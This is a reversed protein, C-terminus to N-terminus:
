CNKVWQPARFITQTWSLLLVLYYKCLVLFLVYHDTILTLSLKASTRVICKRQRENYGMAFNPCWYTVHGVLNQKPPFYDPFTFIRFFYLVTESLTTMKQFNAAILTSLETPSARKEGNIEERSTRTKIVNPRDCLVRFIKFTEQVYTTSGLKRIYCRLAFTAIKFSVHM